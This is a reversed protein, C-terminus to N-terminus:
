GVFRRYLGDDSHRVRREGRGYSIDALRERQVDQIYLRKFVYERCDLRGAGYSQFACSRVLIETFAENEYYEGM